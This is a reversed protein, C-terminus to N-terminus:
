FTVNVGVNLIKILPYNNSGEPDMFKLRDFTLLNYGNVYFRLNSIGFRKLIAPNLRYGLELNKLRIYSADRIWLDSMKSNNSRGTFTLRPTLATEATEPTWHNDAQWKVLARNGLSTFPIVWTDNNGVWLCRSVNKIGTWLISLDFGKFDFGGQISAIYEPYDPYGIARRDDDDIVKDNNLDKYRVDGAKPIYGSQNPFDQYNDAQEQTWFGAFVYGFPQNVPQGTEYLYPENKPIEDKYIVKNRAFSLNSTLYYSFNNIEDRWKLEVEYGKNKVEGINMAPLPLSFIAPVTNRTTLINSRFEHFIDMSFLLNGKFMRLDFGYNQKISKEWTVNPNGVSQEIGGLEKTPTTTGFSYSGLNANYSDPLYLFRNSGLKDNGVTGLSARIKFFDLWSIKTKLFNEETITWGVSVAPFFGFRNKPAFNESGNYGLNLDLMYRSRYNYTARAAIGVYGSPIDPYIPPYFTKSQNYLLLGTVNHNGFSHDYSLATELYWNRNKSSSENYELLGNVGNRKFVITSDGIAGGVNCLYHPDYTAITTSRIKNSVSSSNNSYKIRWELGETIADLNTTLGVDMNFIDTLERQYGSGWGIANLGDKKEATPIYDNTILIRKGDYIMGSFPVAEWLSSWTGDSPISGPQQRLESRGGITLSMKTTKTLDLDLNTRYNYRHFGFQYANGVDFTKFQGNQYLYGLSFFYKIKESGGTINFNHQTQLSTPKVLYNVWNSNPYILTGGNKFAKIAADSFYPVANSDDGLITANHLIAYQYSDANEVLRTPVQAGVSSNFSIKTTGLSGRKTTVIIVGNAGRIGYVATASADKLVSISEVENPDLQSFSREVGDVLMLPQSATTTLSGLGRVFMLPEDNGPQGSYQISTLGTVRGALGSTVTASPNKVILDTQISVIAGTVSVKKQTGYGVVVVEDIEITEEELVVNFLTETGIPIEVTKYGIFSFTLIKASVSVNSLTFSGDPGTLAGLTTGSVHVTVGPLPINDTGTVKGSITKLQEQQIGINRLDYSAPIQIPKSIVVQRDFIRYSNDTTAFVDYLIKEISENKVDLSVRRNVDIINDYYVFILGSAKEIKDMAEKLTADKIKLTFSAGQGYSDIVGANLSVILSFSLITTLKMTLLLKKFERSFPILFSNKKM